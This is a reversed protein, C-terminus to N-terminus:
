KMGIWADEIKPADSGPRLSVAIRVNGSIGSLNIRLIRYGTNQNEEATAPKADIVDFTAGDPQLIGARLTKGNKTLIASRGDKAIAIEAGTIMQWHLPTGEVLGEVEDQVLVRSRDLMWVGRKWSKALGPNAKSLDAIAGSRGAGTEFHCIRGEARKQISSGFTLTSHGLNNLRFYSDRKPGFYGPLSYNDSGLEYSWRVNDCDLLFSGLDQHGHGAGNLGAKFGLYMADPDGWASRFVAVDAEGPFHADLPVPESKRKLADGSAMWLLNLAFLNNYKHYNNTQTIENKLTDLHFAVAPMKGYRQGLFGFLPSVGNYWKLEVDAYNYWHGNPSTMHLEFMVTNSFGSGAPPFLGRDSGTASELMAGALVHFITGYGWYGPGEPYAGLPEYSQLPLKLYEPALRIVPAAMEPQDEAIALAGALQGAHCVSTWNSKGNAWFLNTGGYSRAPNFEVQYIKQAPKLGKEVIATRIATREAPTLEHYLWDYGLSIGMLIEATDLFHAPNWDEMKVAAAMESKARQLFRDDKSLQYAMALATIRKEFNRANRLIDAKPSPRNGDIVPEDLYSTANGLLKQILLKGSDDNNLRAKLVEWGGPKILLRPHGDALTEHLKAAPNEKGNTLNDMGSGSTAIGPKAAPDAAFACACALATFCYLLLKARFQHKLMNITMLM